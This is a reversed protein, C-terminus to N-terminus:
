VDAGARGSTDQVERLREEVALGQGLKGGKVLLTFGTGIDVVDDDCAAIRRLAVHEAAGQYDKRSKGSPGRVQLRLEGRVSEPLLSSSQSAGVSVRAWVEPLALSYCLLKKRISTSPSVSLKEQVIM